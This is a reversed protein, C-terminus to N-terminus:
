KRGFPTPFRYSCFSFLFIVLLCVSLLLVPTDDPYYIERLPLPPKGGTPSSADTTGALSLAVLPLGETRRVPRRAGGWSPARRTPAAPNKNWSFSMDNCGCTSGLQGRVMRFNLTLQLTCPAGNQASTCLHRLECYLLCYSASCLINTGIHQTHHVHEDLLLRPGSHLTCM